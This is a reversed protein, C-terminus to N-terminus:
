YYYQINYKLLVTISINDKKVCNVISNLFLNLIYLIYTFVSNRKVFHTLLNLHATTKKFLSEPVNAGQIQVNENLEAKHCFSFDNIIVGWM